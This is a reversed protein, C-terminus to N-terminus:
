RIQRDPSLLARAFRCLHCRGATCYSRYLYILAQTEFASRLPFQASKWRRVISNNEAPLNCLITEAADALINDGTEVAYGYLLPVVANIVLSDLFANGAVSGVTRKSPVGSLDHHTQWYLSVDRRFLMRFDDIWKKFPKLPQGEAQKLAHGIDIIDALLSFGGGCLSALLALRRYFSSAPRVRAKKWICPAPRLNYKHALFEYEMRLREFYEGEGGGEALLGAQGFVLAELQIINDSHRSLFNLPIHHATAEFADGNLGVGLARAVTVFCVRQWDRMYKVALSTIEEGRSRLRTGALTYLWDSRLLPDLLSVADACAAEDPYSSLRSWSELFDEPPAIVLQPIESGDAHQIRADDMGVVHLIVNGYSPDGDHGHRHWDSARVHVEVDGAWPVGDILLRAYSFDAGANGNPIGPSSVLLERGDALRWRSGRYAHLKWYLQYAYEM